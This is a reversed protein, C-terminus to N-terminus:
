LVRVKMGNELMWGGEEDKNEIFAGLITSDLNTELTICGEDTEDSNSSDEWYNDEEHKSEPSQRELLCIKLNQTNKLTKQREFNDWFQFLESGQKVGPWSTVQWSSCLNQQQRGFVIIHLFYLGGDSLVAVTESEQGDHEAKKLAFLFLKRWKVETGVNFDHSEM